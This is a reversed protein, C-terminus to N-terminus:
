DVFNMFNYNYNQCIHATLDQSSGPTTGRPGGDPSQGKVVPPEFRGLVGLQLSCHGNTMAHPVEPVVNM